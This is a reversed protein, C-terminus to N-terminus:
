SKHEEGWTPDGRQGAGEGGTGQLIADRCGVLVSALRHRTREKTAGTTGLGEGYAEKKDPSRLM